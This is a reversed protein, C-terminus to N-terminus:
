WGGMESVLHVDYVPRGALINAVEFVTVVVLDLIQFGPFVVVGVRRM